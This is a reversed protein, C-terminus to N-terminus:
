HIAWQYGAIFALLVLLLIGLFPFWSIFNNAPLDLDPDHLKRGASAQDFSRVAAAVQSVQSRAAVNAPDVELIELYAWVAEALRGARTLEQARGVAGQLRDVYDVLLGLDAQCYSCTRSLAPLPKRCSPNPCNVM